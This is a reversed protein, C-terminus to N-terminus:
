IIGPEIFSLFFFFVSVIKNTTPQLVIPFGQRDNEVIVHLSTDDFGAMSVGCTVTTGSFFPILLLWLLVLLWKGIMIITEATAEAKSSRM